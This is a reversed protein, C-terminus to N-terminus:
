AVEYDADSAIAAKLNNVTGGVTSTIIVPIHGNSVGNGIDFEYVNTDITLTDGDDPVNSLTM